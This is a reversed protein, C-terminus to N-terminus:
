SGVKLVPYVVKSVLVHGLDKHLEGGLDFSTWQRKFVWEADILDVEVVVEAVHVHGLKALVLARVLESDVAVDHVALQLVLADVDWLEVGQHGHVSNNTGFIIVDVVFDVLHVALM